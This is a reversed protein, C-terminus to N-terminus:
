FWYCKNFYTYIDYTTMRLQSYMRCSLGQMAATSESSITRAYRDSIFLDKVVRSFGSFSVRDPRVEGYLIYISIVMYQFITGIQGKIKKPAKRLGINPQNTIATITRTVLILM